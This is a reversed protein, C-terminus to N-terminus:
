AHAHGPPTSMETVPAAAPTDIGGFSSCTNRRPSRFAASVVFAHITVPPVLDPTISSTPLVTRSASTCTGHMPM